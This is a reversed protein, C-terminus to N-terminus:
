FSKSLIKLVWIKDYNGPIRGFSGFDDYLIRIDVGEEVKEILIDYIEDWM